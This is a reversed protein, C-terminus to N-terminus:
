ESSRLTVYSSLILSFRLLCLISVLGSEASEPNPLDRIRVTVFVIRVVYLASFKQVLQAVVPM